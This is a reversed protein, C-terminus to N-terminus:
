SQVGDGGSAVAANLLDVCRTIPAGETGCWDILRTKLDYFRSQGNCSAHWPHINLVFPSDLARCVEIQKLVSDFASALGDGARQVRVVRRGGTLSMACAEDMLLAPDAALAAATPEALRFPDPDPGLVGDMMAQAREGVLGQDPGYVLVCSATPAHAFRDADAAKIKM